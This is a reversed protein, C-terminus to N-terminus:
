ADEVRQWLRNTRAYLARYGADDEDFTRLLRRLVSIRRDDGPVPPMEREFPEQLALLEWEIAGDGCAIRFRDRDSRSDVLIECKPMGSGEFAAEWREPQAPDEGSLGSRRVDQYGHRALLAILHVGFFRLVGGGADHQRKWNQLGKAFHHAKFTWDIRVTAEPISLELGEAWSAHLLSYGVRYRKGSRELTELVETALAPTQAVPKETVVRRISPLEACRMVIDRQRGPPTAIVVGTAENLASETDAVWRIEGAYRLLEPRSEVKARYGQPLIVPERFHEVLAPFYGYLGFGSGVITFM